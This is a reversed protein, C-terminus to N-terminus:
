LLKCETSTTCMGWLDHDDRTAPYVSYLAAGNRVEPTHVLIDSCPQEITENLKYHVLLTKMLPTPELWVVYPGRKRRITNAVVLV